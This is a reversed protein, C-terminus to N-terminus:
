FEEPHKFVSQTREFEIKIDEMGPMAVMDVISDEKKLLDNYMEISLLVHATRGRDTIMVPGNKADRKAQGVDQNFTRSNITKTLM